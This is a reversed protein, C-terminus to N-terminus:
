WYHFRDDVAARIRLLSMRAARTILAQKGDRIPLLKCGEMAIPHM